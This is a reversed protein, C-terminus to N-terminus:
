PAAALTKEFVTAEWEVTMGARQAVGAISDGDLATFVLSPDGGERRKRSMWDAFTEPTRSWERAFAEEIAGHVDRVRRPDVARVVIGREYLAGYAALTGGAEAVVWHDREPDIGGWDAAVDEPTTEPAVDPGAAAETAAMLEAVAAAEDARPARLGYGSPPKPPATEDQTLM